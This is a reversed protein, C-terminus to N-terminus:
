GANLMLLQNLVIMLVGQELSHLWHHALQSYAPSNQQELHQAIAKHLTRRQAFLLLNYIVKVDRLLKV